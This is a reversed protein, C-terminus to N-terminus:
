GVQLTTVHEDYVMAPTLQQAEEIAEQVESRCTTEVKAVQSKHEEDRMSQAHEAVEIQSELSAIRAQSAQKVDEM